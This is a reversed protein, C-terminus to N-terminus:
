GRAGQVTAVVRTAATAATVTTMAIMADGARAECSTRTTTMTGGGKMEAVIEASATVTSVVRAIAAANMMAANTKRGTKLARRCLTRDMSPAHPRSSAMLWALTGLRCSASPRSVRRTLTPSTLRQRPTTM